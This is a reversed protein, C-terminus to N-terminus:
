GTIVVVCPAQKQDNKTPTMNHQNFEKHFGLCFSNKRLAVFQCSSIREGKEVKRFIEAANLNEFSVFVRVVSKFLVSKLNNEHNTTFPSQQECV